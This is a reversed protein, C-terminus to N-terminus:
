VVEKKRNGGGGYGRNGRSGKRIWENFDVGIERCGETEGLLRKRKKRESRFVKKRKKEVEAEGKRAKGGEAGYKIKKRSEERGRM